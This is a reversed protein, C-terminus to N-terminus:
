GSTWHDSWLARDRRDRVAALLLEDLSVDTEGAEFADIVENFEFIRDRNDVDGLFAGAEQTSLNEADAFDQIVGNMLRMLFRQVDQEYVLKPDEEALTEDLKAGFLVAGLAIRRRDNHPVDKWARRMTEESLLVVYNEAQKGAEEM